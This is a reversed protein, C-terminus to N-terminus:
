HGFFPQIMGNALTMTSVLLGAMFLSLGMEEVLLPLLPPLFALLMDVYLHAGSLVALRAM